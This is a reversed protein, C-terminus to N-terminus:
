EPSGSGPASRAITTGTGGGGFRDLMDLYQIPYYHGHIDIRLRDPVVGAPSATQQADLEPVGMASAAVVSAGAAATKLFDRRSSSDLNRKSMAVEPFPCHPLIGNARCNGAARSDCPRSAPHM